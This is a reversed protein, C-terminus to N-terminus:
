GDAMPKGYISTPEKGMVFANHVTGDRAVRWPQIYARNTRRPVHECDEGLIGRCAESDDASWNKDVEQASAQVDGNEDTCRSMLVAEEGNWNWPFRFRTHAFRYVPDQIQADHWTKGGDTSVEVRKVAGGGSWALGAIECPGRGDIKQGGSPFTIVSKPFVGLQLQRAKPGAMMYAGEGAPSHDVHFHRDQTTMFAQDAVKVQNLWKVTIRGSYGPLILRLPYGNELRIAEGNQAYAVLADGMAKEMPISSSHRSTDASGCIVWGAGDRVGAQKLLVSLPVGTWEACSTRGHIEQLTKATKAREPNGNSGCELFYVRSISPLRKLEALSFVLPREVMGHVLLKYQNPDFDPLIGGEHNVYFHLDTPTIIGHLDQLPTLGNTATGTRVLKEFRSREGLPRVGTPLILGPGKQQESIQGSLPRLGGAATLGALAAGTKIFRRRGPQRSGM